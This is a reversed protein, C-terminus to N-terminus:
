GVEEGLKTRTLYVQCSTVRVRTTSPFHIDSPSDPVISSLGAKGDHGSRPICSRNLGLPPEVDEEICSIQLRQSLAVNTPVIPAQIIHPMIVSIVPSDIDGCRRVAHMSTTPTPSVKIPLRDSLSAGPCTSEALSFSRSFGGVFQVSCGSISQNKLYVSCNFM